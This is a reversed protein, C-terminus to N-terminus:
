YPVRRYSDDFRWAARAYACYGSVVRDAPGADSVPHCADAHHRVRGTNSLREALGLHTPRTRHSEPSRATPRM